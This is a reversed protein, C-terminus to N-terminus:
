YPNATPAPAKRDAIAPYPKREVTGLRLEGCKACCWMVANAWQGGAAYRKHIAWEHACETTIVAAEMPSFASGFIVSNGQLTAM